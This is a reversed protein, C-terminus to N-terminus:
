KHVDRGGDTVEAFCQIPRDHFTLAARPAPLASYAHAERQCSVQEAGGHWASHEVREGGVGVARGDITLHDVGSAYLDEALRVDVCLAMM